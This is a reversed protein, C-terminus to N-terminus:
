RPWSTGGKELEDRVKVPDPLASGMAFGLAGSALLGVWWAGNLVDTLFWSLVLAAVVILVYQRPLTAVTVLGFRRVRDRM